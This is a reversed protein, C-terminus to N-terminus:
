IGGTKLPRIMTGFYAKCELAQEKRYSLKVHNIGNIYRVPYLHMVTEAGCYDLLGKWKTDLVLKENVFESIASHWRPDHNPQKQGSFYLEVGLSPLVGSGVTIDYVAYDHYAGSRQVLEKVVDYDGQWDIAKLYGALHGPEMSSLVLRVAESKRPVMFGTQYVRSNGPLSEICRRTAASLRRPFPINFLMSYIENLLDNFSEWALGDEAGADAQMDFFLNPVLDFGNGGYDFELWFQTVRRDLQSGPELWTSFMSSLREWFPHAQLEGPRSALGDAGALLATGPHNKKIQLFFDCEANSSGLRTEFGFDTATDFPLRSCLSKLHRLQGASILQHSLRHELSEIHTLFTFKM